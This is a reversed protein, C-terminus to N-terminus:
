RVGGKIKQAIGATMFYVDQAVAAWQQHLLGAFDRFARSLADAPVIGQGVENSVAILRLNVSTVAQILADIKKSIEQANRTEMMINSLWLTLCDLLVVDARGELSQLTELLCLPSEITEWDKGRERRHREIRTSMELDRPEATALYVKKGAQAEAMQLAFRSKGSRAGGLVLILASM